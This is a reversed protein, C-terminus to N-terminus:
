EARLVHGIRMTAARHGPWAALLNAALLALPVVLLLAPWAAPPVYHVHTTDAYYRWLVRGLAIGLPVGAAVGVLAPVSAQTVVVARSQWATMGLARLVALEQRRRRVATTLTHGVAGLALLTLFAALFVPLRRIQRLEGESSRELAPQILKEDDGAARQLRALVAAPDADERVVIHATHFMFEGFLSDFESRSVWAGTNYYNQVGEPVFGFGTVTLERTARTGTLEITDGVAVGAASAYPAVVIEASRSPLRGSTVVADIATGVPDLTYVTIQIEAHQAVASRSDNVAVVDPDAAIIALMEDASVVDEGFFGLTAELQHVQGYRAPNAIADDVASSFILAAVVGSVGAVAGLLAPRVSVARSGQGSELAFRAGVVVPVPFGARAAGAVAASQRLSGSSRQALWSASVAGAAVLLPVGVIGPVLVRLDVDVGPEPEMWSAAGYPFWQSAVVSAAGGLQTGIVAALLPGLAAAWSSARPTMGLWRLVELEATASTTHRAIAQGVLVVSAAGVAVAVALMANSEFGTISQEYEVSDVHSWVDIDSRGTVRVLDAAFAAIADGGEELRVLGSMMAVAGSAGLLNPAYETVLGASPVLIGRTDLASDSLLYSRVVGVIQIEVAPGDPLLDPDRWLAELTDPEYLALIVSDGVGKGSTEVFGSTVVAEDPQTPDALRGELVVPREVTRMADVGIPVPQESAQGDVYYRTWATEAVAAVQPMERIVDWDFEPDNPVVEVTAPLTRDLLREVASAGRLAGALATMVAGAALAILLTLVLLSRWRRRLDLRVWFTIAAM